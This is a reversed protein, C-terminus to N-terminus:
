EVLFHKAYRKQLERPSLVVFLSACDFAPNWCPEGGVRAGLRICAELLPPLSPKRLGDHGAGREPLPLKPQVRLSEPLLRRERLMEYVALADRGSGDEGMPIDVCGILCRFEHVDLFRAIGSWLLSIAPGSRYDAHVCTRGIEMIRGAGSLFNEFDFEKAACFGGALRAERDVLVRTSAIVERTMRDRVIVHQCWPDYDDIDLGQVSTPLRAGMEEAFVSYRLRQSERVEGPSFAIGVTLDSALEPLTGPIDGANELRAVATSM